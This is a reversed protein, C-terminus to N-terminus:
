SRRLLPAKHLPRVVAGNKEFRNDRAWNCLDKTAQDQHDLLQGLLDYSSGDGSQATVTVMYAAARAVRHVTPNTRSVALLSGLTPALEARLRRAPAAAGEEPVGFCDGIAFLVAHMESAAGRSKDAMLAQYAREYAERLIREVGIDREQLFGLAFLARCRLWPEAESHILVQELARTVPLTWGGALLADIAHRRYVGANQLIAHELLTKSADLSGKPILMSADDTDHDLSAVADRVVRLCPEDSEPWSNCVAQGTDLTHELTDAVWRLGHAVDGTARAEERFDDTLKRLYTETQGQYPGDVAREWLGLAATGRERITAHPDEIRTKLVDAVWDGSGPPSWERPIAIAAELDLSRAPFLSKARLAASARLQARVWEKLEATARAGDQNLVLVATVARWVRFGLPMSELANQLLNKVVDFAYGAISGLLILADINRPTPPSAGIVILRAVVEKLERSHRDCIRSAQGPIELMSLLASGQMLVDFEDEASRSLLATTWSPPHQATLDKPQRMRRLRVALASVGGTRGVAPDLTATIKDLERLLEIDPRHLKRSLNGPDKGGMIDALDEQTVRHLSIREVTAVTAYGLLEDPKEINTIKTEKRRGM